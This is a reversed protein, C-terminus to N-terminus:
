LRLGREYVEYYFLAVDLLLFCNIADPLCHDLFEKVFTRTYLEENLVAIYLGMISVAELVVNLHFKVNIQL